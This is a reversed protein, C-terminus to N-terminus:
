RFNKCHLPDLDTWTAPHRELMGSDLSTSRHYEKLFFLFLVILIFFYCGLLYWVSSWLPDVM